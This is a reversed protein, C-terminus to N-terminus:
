NEEMNDTKFDAAATSFEPRKDSEQVLTPKGQPKVVFRDLLEIFKSKGIRKQMETISLLKKEYPDFGAEEVTKAVEPENSYKRISRGEVVKYGNWKKGKLAEDLAYAKVEEAWSALEDVKGLM